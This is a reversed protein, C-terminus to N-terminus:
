RGLVWGHVRVIKFAFPVDRNGQTVVEHEVEGLKLHFPRLFAFVIVDYYFAAVARVAPVTPLPVGDFRRYRWAAGENYVVGVHQHIKVRIERVLYVLMSELSMKCGNIHVLTRHIVAIAVVEAM